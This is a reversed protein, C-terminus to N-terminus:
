EDEDEYESDKSIVQDEILITRLKNRLTQYKKSLEAMQKQMLEIYGEGSIFIKNGGNVEIDFSNTKGTTKDVYKITIKSDAKFDLTVTDGASAWMKIPIKDMKNM